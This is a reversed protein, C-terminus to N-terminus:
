IVRKLGLPGSSYRNIPAEIIPARGAAAEEVSYPAPPPDGITYYAEFRKKEDSISDGKDCAKKLDSQVKTILNKLGDGRAAKDIVANVIAGMMEFVHDPETPKARDHFLNWEAYNTELHNIVKDLNKKFAEENGRKTFKSHDFIISFLEPDLDTVYERMKDLYFKTTHNAMPFMGATRPVGNINETNFRAYNDDGQYMLNNTIANFRIWTGIFRKFDRTATNPFKNLQMSKVQMGFLLGNAMNQLASEPFKGRSSQWRLSTTIGDEALGTVMAVAEDHDIDKRGESWIKNLRENVTQDQLLFAHYWTYFKIGPGYKPPDGTPSDLTDAWHVILDYPPHSDFFEMVPYDGAFNKSMEGLRYRSLIGHRVGQILFWMKAHPDMKGALVGFKIYSEYEAPDFGPPVQPPKKSQYRIWEKLMLECAKGLGAENTGLQAAKDEYGDIRRKLGSENAQKIDSFLDEDGWILIMARRVKEELRLFDDTERLMGEDSTDFHVGGGSFEMLANLLDKNDFRLRGKDSLAKMAAKLYDQNKLTKLEREIRWADMLDFMEKYQNVAENEAQEVQLASDHALTYMGPLNFLVSGLNGTRGKAKRNYEKEWWTGFMKGLEFFDIPRAWEYIEGTTVSQQNDLYNKLTFNFRRVKDYLKATNGIMDSAQKVATSFSDVYNKLEALVGAQHPPNPDKFLLAFKEPDYADIDRELSDISGISQEISEVADQYEKRTEPTINISKNKLMERIQPLMGSEQVEKLQKRAQQYPSAEQDPAGRKFKQQRTEYSAAFRDRLDNWDPGEQLTPANEAYDFLEISKQEIHHLNDEFKLRMNYHDNDTFFVNNPDSQLRHLSGVISSAPSNDPDSPDGLTLKLDNLVSNRSALKKTLSQHHDFAKRISIWKLALVSIEASTLSDKDKHFKDVIQKIEDTEGDGPKSYKAEIANKIAEKALPISLKKARAEAEDIKLLNTNNTPLLPFPDSTHDWNLLDVEQQVRSINKEYLSKKKELLKTQEAIHKQRNESGIIKNVLDKYEQSNTDLSRAKKLDELGAKAEAIVTRYEDGRHKILHHVNDVEDDDRWQAELNEIRQTFDRDMMEFLIQQEEAKQERIQGLKQLLQASVQADAEKLLDDYKIKNQLKSYVEALNLYIRHIEQKDSIQLKGNQIKKIYGEIQKEISELHRVSKFQDRWSEISEKRREHANAVYQEMTEFQKETSEVDPINNKALEKNLKQANASSLFKRENLIEDISTIEQNLDAIKEQIKTDKTARMRRFLRTAEGSKERKLQELDETKYKSLKILEPVTKIRHLTELRAIKLEQDRLEALRDKETQTLDPTGKAEREELDELEQINPLFDQSLNNELEKIENPKLYFWEAPNNKVEDINEM